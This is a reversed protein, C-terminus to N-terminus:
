KKGPGITGAPVFKAHCHTTKTDAKGQAISEVWRITRHVHPPVPWEFHALTPQCMALAPDPMISILSLHEPVKLGRGAVFALVPPVYAPEVLLLATPPTAFFLASLLKQLGEPTEDWDPVHYKADPKMGHHKLRELFNIINPSFTPKRWSAMTIFVIRRHGHAVLTDITDHIADTIETRSGAVPLDQARGGIALVPLKKTSLWALVERTGGYVIWADVNLENVLRSLRSTNNGLEEISKPVTIFVHGRADIGHKISLIIEQSRSNDLRLATHLLLGVRLHRLSASKRRAPVIVRSKGAGTAKLVGERELLRLSDRLTDRSVGLQRSLSLVGPLKSSWRGARISERLHEATQEVLSRKPMSNM